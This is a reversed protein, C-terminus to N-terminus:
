LRGETPDAAPSTEDAAENVPEGAVMVGVRPGTLRATFMDRSRENRVEVLEGLGANRTARGVTKIVLNGSVCRVAMLEGRRVMLPPSVQDTHLVAGSPISAGAVQGIVSDIDTVATATKNTLFVERLDLDGPALTQGRGIPRTAVVADVRMAVDLAVRHTQVLRDGQYCRIELPVRGIAASGAPEFEYRAHTAVQSLAEDDRRSPTVRLRARDIGTYGELWTIVRDQLTVTPEISIPDTPNALASPISDVLESSPQEGISVVCRSHGGLTVRAWNIGQTDLLSRVTTATVTLSGGADTTAAVVTDAVQSADSGEIDAIDGLRVPLETTMGSRRIRIEAVADSLSGADARMPGSGFLTITLAIM